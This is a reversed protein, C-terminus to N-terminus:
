VIWVFNGYLISPCCRCDNLHEKFFDNSINIKQGLDIKLIFLLLIYLLQDLSSQPPALCFFISASPDHLLRISSGSSVNILFWSLAENLLLRSKKGWYFGPLIGTSMEHKMGIKPYSCKGWWKMGITNLELTQNQFKSYINIQHSHARIISTTILSTIIYM